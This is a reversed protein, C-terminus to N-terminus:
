LVEFRNKVNGFSASIKIFVSFIFQKSDAKTELFSNEDEAFNKM